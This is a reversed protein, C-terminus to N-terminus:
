RYSPEFVVGDHSSGTSQYTIRSGLGIEASCILPRNANLPPGLLRGMWGVPLRTIVVPLVVM